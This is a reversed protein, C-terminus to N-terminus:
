FDVGVRIKVHECKASGQTREDNDREVQKTLVLIVESCVNGVGSRTIYCRAMACVPFTAARRRLTHFIVPLSILQLPLLPMKEGQLALKHKKAASM